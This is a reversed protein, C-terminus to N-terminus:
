CGALPGGGAPPRLAAPARGAHRPLDDRPDRVVREAWHAHAEPRFDAVRDLASAHLYLEGPYRTTMYSLAAGCAPCAGRTTGPAPSRFRRAGQWAVAAKAFGLYGSVPAGTAARCDACHCLLARFPSVQARFRVAGCRCGGAIPSM